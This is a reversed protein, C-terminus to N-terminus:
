VIFNLVLVIKKTQRNYSYQYPCNRYNKIIEELVLNNVYEMDYFPTVKKGIIKKIFNKNKERSPLDNIKIEIVENNFNKFQALLANVQLSSSTIIIKKAPFQLKQYADENTVQGWRQHQNVLTRKNTQTQIMYAHNIRELQSHYPHTSKKSRYAKPHWQHKVLIQEDYFALQLGLHQMRIHADTDEAGWGQYFEDFGNISKLAETPFMTNGTVEENGNFDIVYDEFPQKKLSEKESLFGYQFYHVTNSHALSKLTHIYNPHFILDIDGVVFYSQTAKQLAINISRCKSWLQGSTPCSIFHIQPYLVILKELEKLYPETSGYDVLFWEFDKDSQNELSNLCNQIIRLDRNRNTLVLSIM